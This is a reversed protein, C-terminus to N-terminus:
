YQIFAFRIAKYILDNHKTDIYKITVEPDPMYVEISGTYTGTECCYADIKYKREKQTASICRNRIQSMITQYESDKINERVEFEGKYISHELVNRHLVGKTDRYSDLDQTGDVVKFSEATIWNLPFVYDSSYATGEKGKIKLLYGNYAM